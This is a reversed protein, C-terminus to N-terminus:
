VDIDTFKFKLPINPINMLVSKFANDTPHNYEIQFNRVIRAIGLELEMEVIRRGICTRPGFGFPLYVFPCSPRLPHASTTAQNTNSEKQARLWREPLYENARPFHNEDRLLAISVMSVRTDKPIRYGSLVVDNAPSRANGVTLPYVRLSEKICARLYPMNKCAEETFESDKHPLIQRVEERLKAQKEPNKALCLLLGTFTSSSTDVGAMFMDMAMVTAIKKDIKLLKELVSKEHEAKEKVGNLREQELREIAENIYTTTIELLTDLSNMLKKFTKTKYYRWISPKLEVDLSLAIFENLTAFMKTAMPNNRNKTILGLQKDLAVVSVSELTWRNIEEEFTDPMELTNPDRIQRIREIFEKNVQSMKGLYLRVNKPQMLVPNVASRFSGWKEGHTALLGETGQFYDARYVSRHYNLAELGVRKPWIGENRLLTEFDQVNHTFVIDTQGFSGPIKCFSGLDERLAMLFQTTDLKHYKGGPLFNRILTFSSMTPIEEFPKASQWESSFTSKIDDDPENLTTSIASRLRLQNIQPKLHCNKNLLLNTHKTLDLYNLKYCYNKYKFM